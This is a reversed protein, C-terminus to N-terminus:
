DTSSILEILEPHTVFTKLEDQANPFLHQYQELTALANKLDNSAEGLETAQHGTTSPARLQQRIFDMDIM